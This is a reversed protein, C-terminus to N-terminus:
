PRLLPETIHWLLSVLTLVVFAYALWAWFRRKAKAASRWVGVSWWIWAGCYGGTDLMLFLPRLSSDPWLFNPLGTIIGVLTGVILGVWFTIWLRYEGRWHRVLYIGVAYFCGVVISVGQLAMGLLLFLGLAALPVEWLLNLNMKTKTTPMKAPEDSGKKTSNQYLTPAVQEGAVTMTSATESDNMVVDGIGICFKHDASFWFDRHLVLAKWPASVSIKQLASFDYGYSKAVPVLSSEPFKGSLVSYAEMIVKGDAGFAIQAVKGDGQYQRVITNPENGPSEGMYKFDPNAQEFEKQTDGLRAFTSTAAALMVLAALVALTAQPYKVRRIRGSKSEM